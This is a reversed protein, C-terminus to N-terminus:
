LKINILFISQLIKINDMSSVTYDAKDFTFSKGLKIYEEFMLPDEVRYVIEFLFKQKALFDKDAIKVEHKPISSAAVLGVIALLVIAIKM